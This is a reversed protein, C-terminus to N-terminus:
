HKGEMLEESGKGNKSGVYERVKNLLVQDDDEFENHSLIIGIDEELEVRAQKLESPVECTHEIFDAPYKDSHSQVYEMYRVFRFSELAVSLDLMMKEGNKPSIIDIKRGSLKKFFDPESSYLDSAEYDQLFKSENGDEKKVELGFSLQKNDPLNSANTAASSEGVDFGTNNLPVDHSGGVSSM